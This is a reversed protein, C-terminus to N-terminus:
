PTGVSDYPDESFSYADREVPAWDLLAYWDSSAVGPGAHTWGDGVRAADAIRQQLLRRSEAVNATLPGLAALGDFIRTANGTDPGELALASLFGYRWVPHHSLVRVFLPASDPDATLRVLRKILLPYLEVQMRLLADIEHIARAHDGARLAYSALKIRTPLDRPARQEAIEFLQWARARDGAREALAALVRYGRGDLPAVAIASRAHALAQEDRHALFDAQALQYQAEPNSARWGLAAAPDSTVLADAMGLTFCRWGVIMAGLLVAVGAPSRSLWAMPAKM